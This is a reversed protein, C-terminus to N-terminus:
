NRVWSTLCRTPWCSAMWWLCVASQDSKSIAPPRPWRCLPSKVVVGRAPSTAAASRPQILVARSWRQLAVCCRLHCHAREEAKWGLGTLWFSRQPQIHTHSDRQGVDTCVLEHLVPVCCRVHRFCVLKWVRKVLSHTCCKPGSWMLSWHSECILPSSWHCGMFLM